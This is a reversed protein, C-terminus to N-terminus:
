EAAGHGRRAPAADTCAAVGREEVLGEGQIHPGRRDGDGLTLLERAPVLVVALVVHALLLASLRAVFGGLEQQEVLLGLDDLVAHIEVLAGEEDVGLGEGRGLEPRLVPLGVPVPLDQELDLEHGLRLVLDWHGKLHADLLLALFGACRVALGDDVVAFPGAAGLLDHGWRSGRRQQRHQTLLAVCQTRALDGLQDVLCPQVAHQRRQAVLYGEEGRRVLSERLEVLRGDLHDGFLGVCELPEQKVVDHRAGKVQALGQCGQAVGRHQLLGGETHACQHEVLRRIAEM